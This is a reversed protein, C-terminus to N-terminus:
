DVVLAAGVSAGIVFAPVVSVVVSSAVVSGGVVAIDFVLGVVLAAAVSAGVSVVVSAVIVCLAVGCSALIDCNNSSVNNWPLLFSSSAISVMRFLLATSNFCLAVRFEKVFFM